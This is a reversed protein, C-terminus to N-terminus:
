QICSLFSVWERETDCFEHMETSPWTHEGMWVRVDELARHICTPNKSKSPSLSQAHPHVYPHQECVTVYM